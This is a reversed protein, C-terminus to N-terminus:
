AAVAELVWLEAEARKRSWGHVYIMFTVCAEMVRKGMTRQHGLKLQTLASRDLGAITSILTVNPTGDPGRLEPLDGAMVEFVRPWGGAPGYAMPTLVCTRLDAGKLHKTSPALPM